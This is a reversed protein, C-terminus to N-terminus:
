LCVVAVASFFCLVIRITMTEFNNNTIRSEIMKMNQCKPCIKLMWLRRQKNATEGGGGGEGWREQGAEWVTRRKHMLTTPKGNQINDTDCIISRDTHSFNWEVGGGRGCLKTEHPEKSMTDYPALYFRVFLVIKILNWMTKTLFITGNNRPMGWLRLVCVVFLIFSFVLDNPIGYVNNHYDIKVCGGIDNCVTRIFSSVDVSYCLIICEVCLKMCFVSMRSPFYVSRMFHLNAEIQSHVFRVSFSFSRALSLFIGQAM